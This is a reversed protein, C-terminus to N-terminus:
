MAPCCTAWDHTEARQPQPSTSSKRRRKPPQSRGSPMPRAAAAPREPFQYDADDDKALPALALRAVHGSPSKASGFVFGEPGNIWLTLVGPDQSGGSMAVALECLVKLRKPDVRVAQYGDAEDYIRYAGEYQPFRLNTCPAPTTTKGDCALTEGDFRPLASPKGKFAAAPVDALEPGYVLADMEPGDPEDEWHVSALITGDTATLRAIGDGNREAAICSTAYGGSNGSCFKALQKIFPPLKM